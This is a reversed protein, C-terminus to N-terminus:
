LISCELPSPPASCAAVDVLQLPIAFNVVATGTRARGLIVQPNTALPRSAHVSLYVVGDTSPAWEGLDHRPLTPDDSLSVELGDPAWALLVECGNACLPPLKILGASECPQRGPGGSTTAQLKCPETSIPVACSEPLAADDCVCIQLVSPCQVSCQTPSLTTDTNCDDDFASCRERAGGHVIFATDDCDRRDGLETRLVKNRGPSHLDCDLDPPDLRDAGDAAGPPRVEPLLVRLEIGDARRWVFGSTAGTAACPVRMVERSKVLPPTVTSGALSFARDVPELDIRFITVDSVPSVADPVLERDLPAAFIGQPNYVGLALLPDLQPQADTDRQVAVLPVYPGGAGQIELQFKDTSKGGLEITTRSREEMYFVTELTGGDNKQPNNHRQERALVRPELLVVDVSRAGPVAGALELVIQPDGGCAAAGVLGVLVLARM